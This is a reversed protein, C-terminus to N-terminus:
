RVMDFGDAGVTLQSPFISKIATVNREDHAGAFLIFLAVARTGSIIEGAERLFKYCTQFGSYIMMDSISDFVIATPESASALTRELVELLVGSEFLPINVEESRTASPDIYRTSESMTYLKVGPVASFFAHLRSGKASIVFVIRKESRFDKVLDNLSEEYRVSTDVEVLSLQGGKLPIPAGSKTTARPVEGVPPEQADGSVPAVFGALVAARRFNRAAIGFFASLVLYAVATLDLGYNFLSLSSILYIASSGGFGIALGLQARRMQPNRIRLAGAVLLAIPYALFLLFLVGIAASFTLSYSVAQVAGGAFDSATVITYPRFLALYAEAAMTGGIFLLFMALHVPHARADKFLLRYSTGNPRLYGGVAASLLLIAEIFGLGFSFLPYVSLLAASGTLVRALDLLMLVVIVAYVLILFDRIHQYATLRQRSTYLGSAVTISLAAAYGALNLDFSTGSIM